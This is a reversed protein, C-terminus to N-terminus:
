AREISPEGNELRIIYAPGAVVTGVLDSPDALWVHMKCGKEDVAPCRAAASNRNVYNFPLPIRDCEWREKLAAAAAMVSDFRELDDPLTPPSYSGGGHWAGFVADM